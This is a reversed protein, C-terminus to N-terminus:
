IYNKFVVMQNGDVFGRAQHYMRGGAMAFRGEDMAEEMVAVM